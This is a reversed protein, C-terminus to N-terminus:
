IDLMLQEPLQRFSKRHYKCIGYKRIAERHEKTPYGKNKKWNYMPFELHIKEMYADRYTKALVSAAAISLYKGDGKIICHHQISQYPKFRNGDVLILSPLMSLKDLSKHMALFSANLINIVDIEEQFVHQVSYTLAKEELIPKLEKRKSESLKKSDTLVENEFDPALIIAAATVPGALCGRGAEDTGALHGPSDFRVLSM